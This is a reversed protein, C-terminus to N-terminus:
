NVSSSNDMNQSPKDLQRQSCILPYGKKSKVEVSFETKKAQQRNTIEPKIELDTKNNFLCFNSYLFTEEAVDTLLNKIQEDNLKDLARCFYNNEKGKAKSNDKTVTISFSSSDSSVNISIQYRGYSKQFVKDNNDNKLLLDKTEKKVLSVETSIANNESDELLGNLYSMELLDMFPLHKLMNYRNILVRANKGYNSSCNYRMLFLEEKSLQCRLIKSVSTRQKESISANDLLDLLRYLVRFHVTAVSFYKVYFSDFCEIAEMQREQFSKSKITAKGYDQIGKVISFLGVSAWADNEVPAGDSPASGDKPNQLSFDRGYNAITNRYLNFLTSFLENFQQFDYVRRNAANARTTERNAKIQERLTKVLLRVSIYAIITGVIGGIFDGFTGWVTEDIPSHLNYTRHACFFLFSVIFVALASWEIWNLAIEWREKPDKVKKQSQIVPKSEM